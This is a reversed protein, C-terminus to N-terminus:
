RNVQFIGGECRGVTQRGVLVRVVGRIKPGSHLMLYKDLVYKLVHRSIEGRFQRLPVWRHAFPYSFSKHEFWFYSRLEGGGGIRMSIRTRKTADPCYMCTNWKSKMFIQVIRKRVPLAIGCAETVRLHLDCLLYKPSWTTAILFFIQTPYIPSNNHLRNALQCLHPSPHAIHTPTANSHVVM